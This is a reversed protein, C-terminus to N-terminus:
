EGKNIISISDYKTDTGKRINMDKLATAIGVFNKSYYNKEEIESDLIFRGVRILAIIGIPTDTKSEYKM